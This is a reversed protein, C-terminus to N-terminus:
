NWDELSFTFRIEENDDKTLFKFCCISGLRMRRQCTLEVIPVVAMVKNLYEYIKYTSM